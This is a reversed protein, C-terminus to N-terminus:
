KLKSEVLLLKRKIELFKGGTEGAYGGLGNKAVVRHCPIIGPFPNNRCAGAVVRAGSDIKKALESYSIVQGVPIKCIEAWVKNRFDTGQKKLRVTLSNTPDNIYQQIQKCLRGKNILDDALNDFYWETRLILNESQHVVLTGADVKIESCSDVIKDQDAWYVIITMVRSFYAHDHIRDCVM